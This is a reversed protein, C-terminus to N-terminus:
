EYVAAFSLVVHHVFDRAYTGEPDRDPDYITIEMGVNLESGLLGRLVRMLEMYTMGGPQPSDVAPMIKNDLVDVDFHIFFGTVASEEFRQLIQHVVSDIGLQRMKDLTYMTVQSEFIQRAPYTHPDTIDRNGLLVVDAERVYPKLGGINTLLEPGRGTALALDMGAAGGSRSTQPTHYDTHGDLFVLGYRGLKRLALMSGLLISCDGGLVLAFKDSKIERGVLEALRASYGRIAAGNRVGTEPEIEPRYFPADVRGGDVARLRSALQAAKLASPAQAAGPAKGSAPPMLGLNSPAEIVSITRKNAM